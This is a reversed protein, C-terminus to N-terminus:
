IEASTIICDLIESNGYQLRIPTLEMMPFYVGDFSGFAGEEPNSGHGEFM